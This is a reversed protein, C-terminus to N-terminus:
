EFLHARPLPEGCFLCARRRTNSLHGCAPCTIQAAGIKGDEQGDRLDVESIKQLLEEETIGVRERLLEWLAQNCLQLRLLRNELALTRDNLGQHDAHSALAEGTAQTLRNSLFRSLTVSRLM